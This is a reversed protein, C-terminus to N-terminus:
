GGAERQGVAHRTAFLRASALALCRISSCSASLASADRTSRLSGHDVRQRSFPTSQQVSSKRPLRGQMSCLTRAASCAAVSADTCHSTRPLVHPPRAAETTRAGHHNCRTTHLTPHASRPQRTQHPYQDRHHAALTAREETQWHRTEGERRGMTRHHNPWAPFDCQALPHM